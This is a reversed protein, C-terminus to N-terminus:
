TPEEPTWKWRSRGRRSPPEDAEPINISQTALAPIVIADYLYLLIACIFVTWLYGKVWLVGFFISLLFLRYLRRGPDLSDETASSRVRYVKTM